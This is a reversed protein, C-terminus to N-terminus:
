NSYPAPWRDRGATRLRARAAPTHRMEGARRATGASTGRRSATLFKLAEVSCSIPLLRSCGLASRRFFHCWRNRTGRPKLMHTQGALTLFRANPLTAALSENARRMWQPSKGGAMVLTPVTVSKWRNAPLPKGRQLDKVIAGDYPLTHAIAKLKPWMPLLHMIAIVLSPVGVSQLFFRVADSRRGDAVADDIRRWDDETTPRSDDIILPAEYIAVKRIGSLRNAAELALVAGSSMGWLFASGGARKLIAAIDEVEREM